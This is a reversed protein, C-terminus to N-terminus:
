AESGLLYENLLRIGEDVTLAINDIREGGWVNRTVYEGNPTVIATYM